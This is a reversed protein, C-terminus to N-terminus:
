ANGHSKSVRWFCSPDNNRRMRERRDMWGVMEIYAYGECENTRRRDKRREDKATDTLIHNSKDEPNEHHSEM